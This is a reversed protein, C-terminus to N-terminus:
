VDYTKDKQTMTQIWQNRQNLISYISLFFLYLIITTIVIFFTLFNSVVVM